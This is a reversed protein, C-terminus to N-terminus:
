SETRFLKPELGITVFEEIPQYGMDRIVQNSEVPKRGRAADLSWTIHFTKGDPRRTTGGIRVVLAQVGVQDDAVGVIQGITAKPLIATAKVGFKYTIHEAIVKPYAPPFMDLLRTREDPALLWGTYHSM